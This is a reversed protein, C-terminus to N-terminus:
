WRAHGYFLVENGADGNARVSRKGEVGLDLRHGVTLRAGTKYARARPGAMSLGAYPTLLGAGGGQALGYGADLDLRDPAWRPRAEASRPARVGPAGEWLQPGGSGPAGWGPAFALWPGRGARGPDLRVTLSGGREEFASERHALLYRGRADVNLGLGTHVWALGGGVEVGLGSEADGGDWRGGLDLSPTMRSLASLTWERRGELRLRLRRADGASKPLGRAAETELEALFTDAKVAVDIGRWTAVEQRLGFAATRMEVDTEVTGAEDELGVEGRGVGLLGWVGLGPRLTWHAYPLVSTMDLDVTGATVAEAEYDADGRTHALAMGLVRDPQPRWDLGVYAGFVEGDMRFGAEPTGRFGGATGRGWLRLGEGQAAGPADPPSLSLEFSSRSLLEVASPQRFGEGPTWTRWGKADTPGMAHAHGVGDQRAVGWPAVAGPVPGGEAGRTGSAAPPLALGGVVVQAAPAGTFREGVVEVADAVITRGMGALVLRLARRRAAETDNDTITGTASGAEPDMTANTAGTLRVRFTEAPEVRGDDLTQVRLTGAVDGPPLRLRGAAVARYDAGAQATGGAETVWTLTVEAVSPGSLRVPFAVVAGEVAGADALSVGVRRGPVGSAEESPADDPLDARTAIVHVTYKVGPELNPITYRTTGAGSVSAQRGGRAPPRPDYGQVGSRWQVKYGDAGDVREWSVVLREVGPAVRVGGVRAGPTGTGEEFVAGDSGDARLAIVRVTCETGPALGGIIYRTTGAGSVRAQRAEPDYEEGGCKWQVKYGAAGGVPTWSVILREGGPDVDLEDSAKVRGTAEDSPAGDATDARTAIVRVTYEAGPDLGGITHSTTGGGTVSAQRAEPDYGEGGSRWRVKYGDAHRVQRWTVVLSGLRPAVGVEVVQALEPTGTAEASPVGEAGAETTAIVRVTYETGPVLPVRGGITYSTTGAGRVSGQRDPDYGQAGSRWQM